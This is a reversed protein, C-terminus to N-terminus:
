NLQYILWLEELGVSTTPILSYHLAFCVLYVHLYMCMCMYMCVHM